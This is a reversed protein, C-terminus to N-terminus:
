RDGGTISGSNKSPDPYEWPKFGHLFWDKASGRTLESLEKQTHHWQPPIATYFLNNLLSPVRKKVSLLKHKASGRNAFKDAHPHDHIWRIDRAAQGANLASHLWYQRAQEKIKAGTSMNIKSGGHEAALKNLEDFFGYQFSNM